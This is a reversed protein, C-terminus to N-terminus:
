AAYRKDTTIEYLAPQPGGADGIITYAVNPNASRTIGVITFTTGLGFQACHKPGPGYGVADGFAHVQGTTDVIWYGLGTATSCIGAATAGVLGGHYTAPPEAYVNGNPRVILIGENVPNNDVMSTEKTAPPRPLPAPPPMPPTPNPQPPTIGFFSDFLLSEDWTGHDIWQTGDCVFPAGCTWPGCIHQGVELGPLQGPWGYHASLRRYGSPWPIGAATLNAIIQPMYGDISAYVVPRTVGTAQQARVEGVAQAPDMDGPEYDGGEGVPVAFVTLDLLYANPHQAAIQSYDAYLGDGYGAFADIGYPLSLLAAPSVSDAMRLVGSITV